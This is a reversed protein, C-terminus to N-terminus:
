VERSRVVDAVLRQIREGIEGWQIADNLTQLPVLKYGIVGGGPDSVFPGIMELEAYVRLQYTDGHGPESAKQYGIPMWKVVRANLEEQMERRLVADITEGPEVTGGPLSQPDHAYMVVRVRDNLNGIAYVQSWPLDPLQDNSKIDFWEIAIVRDNYRFSTQTDPTMAEDYWSICWKILHSDACCRYFV